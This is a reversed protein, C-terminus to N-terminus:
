RGGRLAAAVVARSAEDPTLGTFGGYRTTTYGDGWGLVALAWPLADLREPIGDRLAPASLDLLDGPGIPSAYAAARSSTPVSMLGDGIVTCAVNGWWVRAGEPVFPLCDGPVLLRPDPRTM